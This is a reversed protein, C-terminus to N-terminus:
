PETVRSSRIVTQAVAPFIVVSLLGAAVLAAQVAPTITHNVVGIQAAVVILPLSTAQLLGAALTLGRGISRGYVLAPLGRATLMALLFVPILTLAGASNTVASLSLETGSAVFYIPILFGFGIAQLNLPLAPFTAEADPSALRMLVGALFAGLISELGFADALVICGLLLAMAIRIALQGGQSQALFATTRLGRQGLVLSAALAAILAGFCFLLVLESEPSSGQQSFFLSLLVVAGFEGTSAGVFVLRGFPTTAEEVEHLVPVVLGLSTAVLIISVLLPADVLGLFALSIGLISAAILSLAFGLAAPGIVERAAAVDVEYGALFLLFALGITALVNLASDDHVWGLVHPGIVLGAVVELAVAPIRLRGLARALLPCVVAVVTVIFLTVFEIGSM